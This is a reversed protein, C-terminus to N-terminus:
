AQTGLLKIVMNMYVKIFGIYQNLSVHETPSCLQDYMGPGLQPLPYGYATTIKATDGGGCRRGRKINRGFVTRFAEIGAEICKSNQDMKLQPSQILIELKYNMDPDQAKLSDLINKLEATASEVTEGTTYRRDLSFSCSAPHINSEKGNRGAQIETVSLIAGGEINNVYREKKLMDDYQYLRSIAKHAKRIADDRNFRNGAHWSDAFYTVRYAIRGDSDVIIWDESAEMSVGFDAKLLGKSILYKAGYEGGQEEDCDCSLSITGNPIYNNRKLLKMAMIAASLGTKMDASGCAYINGDKIEASWPDRPNNPDPPFVDYHGNFMFKKGEANGTWNVIVNPREPVLFHIEPVFDDKKLWRIVVESIAKEHGTPSPTRLMEKLFDIAEEKNTEVIENIKEPTMFSNRESINMKEINEDNFEEKM